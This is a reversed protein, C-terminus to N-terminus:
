HITPLTEEAILRYKALDATMLTDITKEDLPKNTLRPVGESCAPIEESISLMIKRHVHNVVRAM